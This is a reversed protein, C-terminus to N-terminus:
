EVIRRTTREEVVPQQVVPQQVVPQQVVPPQQVVTRRQVRRTRDFLGAAAAIAALVLVGVIILVATNDM